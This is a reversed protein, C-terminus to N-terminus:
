FILNLMQLGGGLYYVKEFGINKLLIASELSRPGKQCVCLIKGGKDLKSAETRFDEFPIRYTAKM